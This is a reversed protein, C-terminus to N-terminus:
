RSETGSIKQFLAQILHFSIYVGCFFICFVALFAGFTGLVFYAVVGAMLSIFTQLAIARGGWRLYNITSFTMLYANLAAMLFVGVQWVPRYFVHPFLNALSLVAVNLGAPPAIPLGIFGESRERDVQNALFRVERFIGACTYAIGATWAAVTLLLGDHPSRQFFLYIAVGPLLAFSVVDCQSDLVAGLKSKAALLSAVKGDIGDFFVAFLMWLMGAVYRGEVLNILSVFGCGVGAFTLASPIWIKNSSM